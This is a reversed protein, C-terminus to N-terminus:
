DFRETEGRRGLAEVERDFHETDRASELRQKTLNRAELLRKKQKLAWEDAGRSMSAIRDEPLLEKMDRRLQLLKNTMEGLETYGGFDGKVSDGLSGVINEVVQVFPRVDLTPMVDILKELLLKRETSTEMRLVYGIHDVYRSIGRALETYVGQQVIKLVFLWKNHEPDDLVGKRALRGEEEAVSYKLYAVFSDDFLPRMDRVAETLAAATEEETQHSPDMAVKCISRIVELQQAELEAGLARAEKLLLQAHAVIQGLLVRERAHSEELSNDDNRLAEIDREAMQNLRQRILSPFNDSLLLDKYNSTIERIREEPQIWLEDLLMQLRSIEAARALPDDILGIEVAEKVVQQLKEVQDKAIERTGLFYKLERETGSPKSKEEKLNMMVEAAFKAQKLAEDLQKPLRVSNTGSAAGPWNVATEPDVNPDYLEPGSFIDFVPNKTPGDTDEGPSKNIRVELEALEDDLIRAYSSVSKESSIISDLEEEAAKSLSGTESSSQPTVSTIHGNALREGAEFMRRLDEEPTLEKVRVEPPEDTKPASSQVDSAVRQAVDNRLKEQRNRKQERLLEKAKEFAGSVFGDGVMEEKEKEEGFKLVDNLLEEPTMERGQEAIETLAKQAASILNKQEEDTTDDDDNNGDSAIVPEKEDKRNVNISRKRAKTRTGNESSSGAARATEPAVSEVQRKKNFDEPRSITQMFARPKGSAYPDLSPSRVNSIDNPKETATSPSGDGENRPSSEEAKKPATKTRKSAVTKAADVAFESQSTAKRMEVAKKAAQVAFDMEVSHEDTPVGGSAKSTAAEVSPPDHQKNRESPLIEADVIVSEPVSSGKNNEADLEEKHEDMLLEALIADKGQDFTQSEADASSDDKVTGGCGTRVFEELGRDLATLIQRESDAFLNKLLTPMNNNSSSSTEKEVVVMALNVAEQEQQKDDKSAYVAVVQIQLCTETPCPSLPSDWAVVYRDDSSTQQKEYVM